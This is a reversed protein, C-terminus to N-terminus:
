KQWRRREDNDDEEEEKEEGGRHRRRRIGFKQQPELFCLTTFLNDPEIFGRKPVHERFLNCYFRLVPIRLVYNCKGRWNQSILHIEIQVIGEFVKGYLRMVKHQIRKSCM